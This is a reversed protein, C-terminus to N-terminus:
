SEWTDRDELSQRGELGWRGWPGPTGRSERAIGELLRDSDRARTDKTVATTDSPEGEGNWRRNVEAPAIQPIDRDINTKLGRM